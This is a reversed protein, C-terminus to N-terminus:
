RMSEAIRLATALDPAGEIRITLQGDNWALVNGVLRVNDSDVEGDPRLYMLEHPEGAIWFGDNGAVRVGQITTGPRLVKKLYDVESVGPFQTVLIAVPTGNANPANSTAPFAPSTAYAASVQANPASGRVYVGLPQGLDPLTPLLAPYGAAADVGAPDVVNGLGLSEIPASSSPPTPSPRTTPGPSGSALPAGSGTQPSATQAPGLIVIRLGPLGFGIAAAIGALVLLAALALVLGRRAPRGTPSGLRDLWRPRGSSPAGLTEIRLRVARALDPASVPALAGGLDLLAAELDADTATFRRDNTPRENM